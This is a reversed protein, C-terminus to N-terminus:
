RPPPHPHPGPARFDIGILDFAEREYFNAGAFVDTLSPVTPDDYPVRTSVIMRERTTMSLLNLAVEFRPAETYHDVAAIDIFSDFGAAKAAEAFPIWDDVPVSVITYQVSSSAYTHETFTAAEFQEVVAAVGPSSPLPREDAAADPAVDEAPTEVDSM